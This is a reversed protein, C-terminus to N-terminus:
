LAYTAGSVILLVNVAKGFQVDTLRGYLAMGSLTGLLSAPVFAMDRWHFGENGPHSRQMLGIALFSGLQMALIYPQIVGRQRGKDWGKMGCWISVFVGPFGAAGGAIGGLFGAALDVVTPPHRVVMAKRLLMYGGYAILFGGLVRTYLARDAHLLVWIGLPLGLTGCVCYRWLGVWPVDRRVMWTMLAQSAISCTIMIAVVRVPNDMVHFLMAGALASFAFGAIGSVLSAAFVAVMVGADRGHDPVAVAAILLATAAVSLMSVGTRAAIVSAAGNGSM